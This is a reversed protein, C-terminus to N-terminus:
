TDADRTEGNAEFLEWARQELDMRKYRFLSDISMNTEVKGKRLIFGWSFDGRKSSLTFRTAYKKNLEDILDKLFKDDGKKGFVVEEDGSQSFRKILTIMLARYDEFPQDLLKKYALSFAKEMWDQKVKLMSKRVELRRTLMVREKKRNYSEQLAEKQRLFYEEAEKKCQEEISRAEKEADAIIKEAEKRADSYIREIIGELSM